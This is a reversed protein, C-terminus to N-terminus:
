TDAGAFEAGEGAREGELGVMELGVRVLGVGEGVVAGAAEVKMGDGTADAV